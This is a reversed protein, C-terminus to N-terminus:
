SATELLWDLETRIHGVVTDLTAEPINFRPQMRFVSWDHGCTFFFCGHRYLRHCLLPSATARETLGAFGFHEFSLWPHDLPRLKVGLMLGEGRIEEVLPHGTLAADLSSRLRAGLMRVRELLADDILELTAIAAIMSLANYGFTVNHSEGDEFDAGYARHFWQATTMMTSVAVLGGGLQKALLAADPRRPWRESRLFTGTRGLGTQVEDAVLLADHRQTLECAAQIWAEPHVRVGGEGQIPEVVLAAVDGASFAAHLADIDGFPLLESGPLHPGFPERFPGPEMLSTSGWGCGHYAGRVGLIRTRRTAARALKLSAEVADSGSAGFWSRDYGTREALTRGLRGAWPSLRASPWSPLDTALYEQLARTVHPHRHGLAQTGHFDEFIRGDADVLRGDATAVIQWPEGALRARQSLLPNVFRAYEDYGRAVIERHDM